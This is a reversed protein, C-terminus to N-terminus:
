HAVLEALRQQRQTSFFGELRQFLVIVLTGAEEGDLQATLADLAEGATREVSHANRAAARYTTGGVGTGVPLIAVSTM